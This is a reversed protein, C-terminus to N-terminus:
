WWGIQGSLVELVWPEEAGGQWWSGLVRGRGSHVLLVV